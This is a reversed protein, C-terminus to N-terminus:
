AFPATGQPGATGRLRVVCYFGLAVANFALVFMGVSSAGYAASLIASLGPGIGNGLTVLATSAAVARGMRDLSAALALQYIVSSLNTISQLVNAAVYVWHVPITSVLLISLANVAILLLLSTFRGFRNGAWAAAVAGLLLLLTAASLIMGIAHHNFGAYRGYTEEMSWFAGQGLQTLFVAAVALVAPLVFPVRSAPLVVAARTSPSPLRRLLYTGVMCILLLGIYPARYGLRDIMYPLVALWFAADVIAVITLIAILRERDVARSLVSMAEAGVIGAGIGALLRSALLAPLVPSILTFATAVIALLGGALAWHRASHNRAWASLCLTTLASAALELSLLFGATRASLQAHAELTDILLPMLFLDTTVILQSGIAPLLIMRDRRQPLVRKLVLEGRRCDPFTCLRAYPEPARDFNRWSLIVISRNM